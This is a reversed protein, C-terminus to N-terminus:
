PRQLSELLPLYLCASISPTVVGGAALCWWAVEPAILGSRRTTSRTRGAISVPRGPPDGHGLPPAGCPHGGHVMEVVDQVPLQLLARMCERSLVPAGADVFRGDYCGAERVLRHTGNVVHRLTERTRDAGQRHLQVVPDEILLPLLQQRKHGAQGTGVCRHHLPLPFGVNSACASAAVM